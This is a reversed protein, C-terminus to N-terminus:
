VLGSRGDSPGDIRHATRRLHRTRRPFVDTAVTTAGALLILAVATRRTPLGGFAGLTAVMITGAALAQAITLLLLTAGPASLLYAAVSYTISRVGSAQRAANEPLRRQSNSEASAPYGAHRREPGDVKALAFSVAARGGKYYAASDQIYSPSVSRWCRGPCCCRQLSASCSSGGIWGCRSRRTARPAEAQQRQSAAPVTGLAENVFDGRDSSGHRQGADSKRCRTSGEPRHRDNGEPRRDVPGPGAMRRHRRDESWREALAAQRVAGLQDRLAPNTRWSPSRRAFAPRTTSCCGPRAKRSSRRTLASTAPSLRRAKGSRRWRWWRSSKTACRRLSSRSRTAISRPLGRPSSRASSGSRREGPRWRGCSPRSSEPAPWWCTPPVTTTSAPSSTRCVRSARCGASSCSIPGTIRRAGLTLASESEGRCGAHVLGDPGHGEEPRVRPAPRRRVPEARHAWRCPGPQRGAALDAAVGAAAAQVGALMPLVRARRLAGPRAALPHPEPLRALSRPRHLAQDGGRARSRCPRRGALHQPFSHRRLGQGPDGRDGFAPRDATGDSAHPPDIGAALRSELQHVTVGAPQPVPTPAPPPHLASKGVRWADADYIVEVECGRRALSHVWNRIYNGDGGFNCPRISPPSWRSAFRAKTRPARYNRSARARRACADVRRRRLCPHDAKRGMFVTGQAM